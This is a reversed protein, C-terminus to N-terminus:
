PRRRGPASKKASAGPTSARAAEPHGPTEQGAMRGKAAHVPAAADTEIGAQAELAALLHTAYAQIDREARRHATEADQAEIAQLIRRHANSVLRRVEPSAFSEIRSVDLMLSAISAAFARLLVNHSAAALAAHWHANEELFRPADDAVAADLRDSIARLEDLDQDTRYKAALRAIQPGLAQRAEVLAQPPVGHVKAFAHIHSSLLEDSPKAVESGGYRGPRTRVLGRAELIRLAERVSGRSLGTDAVLERETPLPSGPPFRGDVIDRHLRDALVDCSKPVEIPGVNRGAQPIAAPAAEGPVPMAATDSARKGNRAGSALAVHPSTRLAM